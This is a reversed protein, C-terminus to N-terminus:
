RASVVTYLSPLDKQCVQIFSQMLTYFQFDQVYVFSVPRLPPTVKRWAPAALVELNTQQLSIFM